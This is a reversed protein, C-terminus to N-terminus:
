SQHCLICAKFSTRSPTDNSETLWNVLTTSLLCELARMEFRDFLHRAIFTSTRWQDKEKEPGKSVLSVICAYYTCAHASAHSCQLKPVELQSGRLQCKALGPFWSVWSSGSAMMYFVRSVFNTRAQMTQEHNNFPFPCPISVSTTPHPNSYYYDETSFITPLSGPRVSWM